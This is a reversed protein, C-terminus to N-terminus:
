LVEAVVRGVGRGTIGIARAAGVSLDLVRGRIFPGRDNITVRVQTGFPLTRHAATLGNPNYRAGSATRSGSESGYYSAQGSFSRAGPAPKSAAAIKAAIRRHGENAEAPAATTIAFAALITAAGAIVRVRHASAAARPSAKATGRTKTVFM